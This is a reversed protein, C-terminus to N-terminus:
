NIMSINKSGCQDKVQSWTYDDVCNERKKITRGNYHKNIFFSELKRGKM